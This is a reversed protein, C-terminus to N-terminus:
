SRGTDTDCCTPCKYALQQAALTKSRSRAKDLLSVPSYQIISCNGNHFCASDAVRNTMAVSVFIDLVTLIAYPYIPGAYGAPQSEATASLPATLLEYLELISIELIM